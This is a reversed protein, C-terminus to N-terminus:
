LGKAEVQVERSACVKDTNRCTTNGIGTLVSKCVGRSRIRFYQETGITHPTCRTSVACHALGASSSFNTNNIATTVDNCNGTTIPTGNAVPFLASLAVENASEAMMLARAGLVEQVSQDTSAAINRSIAVTLLSMVVIVFIAIALAGGGQKNRSKMQGKLYM